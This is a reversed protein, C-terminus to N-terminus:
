RGIGVGKSNGSVVGLGDRYTIDVVKGVQVAMSLKAGDHQVTDGERNIKQTVVAGAVDVVLGSFCGNSVSKAPLVFYGARHKDALECSETLM